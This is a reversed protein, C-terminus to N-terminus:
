QDDLDNIKNSTMGPILRFVRNAVGALAENERLRAVNRDRMRDARAHRQWADEPRGPDAVPQAHVAGHTGGAGVDIEDGAGLTAKTTASVSLPGRNELMGFSISCSSLYTSAAPVLVSRIAASGPLTCRSDGASISGASVAAAIAGYALGIPDFRKPSSCRAAVTGM